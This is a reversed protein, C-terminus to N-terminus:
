SRAVRRALAVFNRVVISHDGRRYALSVLARPAEGEIRLYAVGEARLQELSQPVISVGFGAAVMYVISVTQSAEQGLKPSFGARYCSAIIADYLGPGIARPFLIMTDSALAALPLCRDGAHRHSEPLVITMPEDVLPEISLGERDIIPPRVFAVDIERNRLGAVLQATNSQEPSLVVGPYRERYARIIGIVLQHIYTVGAFGLHIRGAEGRAHGQISTRTREVQDLLRHADDLLLMGTQTLEVGRKLRRFLPTGIEQELQRIQLSLPPQKIGLREAARTFHLEEAVAVFYRLHRLEMNRCGWEIPKAYRAAGRFRRRGLPAALIISSVAFIDFIGLSPILGESRGIGSNLPAAGGWPTAQPFFPCSSPFRRLYIRPCVGIAAM